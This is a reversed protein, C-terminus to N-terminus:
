SVGSRSPTHLPILTHKWMNKVEVRSRSSHDAERRPQKVEQFSSSLLWLFPPSKPGLTLRPMQVVFKQNRNIVRGHNKHRQTLLRTAVRLEKHWSHHTPPMQPGNVKPANAFNRFAVALKTMDKKRESRV